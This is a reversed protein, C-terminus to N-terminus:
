LAQVYPDTFVWVGDSDVRIVKGAKSRTAGGDTLAVTNDDVIYCIKGADDNAIEDAAASNAFPRTGSQIKPDAAEGADVHYDAVGLAIFTTGTAGVKILDTATDYVCLSGTYFTAAPDITASGFNGTLNRPQGVEIKRTVDASLATM